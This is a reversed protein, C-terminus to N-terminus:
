RSVGTREPDSPSATDRAAEGLRELAETVAPLDDGLAEAVGDLYARNIQRVEGVVAEGERTLGLPVVRRDQPNQHREVLGARVLKDILGSVTSVTVGLRAALLNTTAGPERRLLFLIRLQPLTLGREEWVRLRIADVDHVAAWYAKRFRTRLDDCM